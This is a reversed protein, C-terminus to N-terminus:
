GRPEDRRVPRPIVEPGAQRWVSEKYAIAAVILIAIISIILVPDMAIGQGRLKRRVGAIPLPHRAGGAGGALHVSISGLGMPPTM